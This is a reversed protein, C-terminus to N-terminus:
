VHPAVALDRISFRLPLAFMPINPNPPFHMLADIVLTHYHTARTQPEAASSTCWTAGTCGEDMALRAVAMPSSKLAEPLLSVVENENAM